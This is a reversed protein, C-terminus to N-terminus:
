LQLRSFVSHNCVFFYQSIMGLPLQIIYAGYAYPAPVKDHIHACGTDVGVWGGAVLLGSTPWRMAVSGGEAGWEWVLGVKLEILM